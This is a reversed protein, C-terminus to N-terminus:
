QPEQGHPRFVGARPLQPEPLIGRRTLVDRIRSLSEASLDLPLEQLDIGRSATSDIQGRLVGLLRPTAVLLVRVLGQDRAFRLLAQAVERAFRREDEAEHRGRHDDTIPGAGHPGAGSPKRSPRDSFEEREPIDRLPQVLNGHESLRPNGELDLDAADAVEAIIFRARAGDATIIGLKSMHEESDALADPKHQLAAFM